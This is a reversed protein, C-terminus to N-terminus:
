NVKVQYLLYAAQGNSLTGGATTSSGTGLYFTMTSGATTGTSKGFAVNTAGGTNDTKLDTETSNFSAKAFITGATLSGYTTGSILTTYTPTVDTAYVALSSGTGADTVVALYELVDGPKGSVGAPYFLNSSTGNVTVTPTLQTGSGAVPTTVNRVYKAITLLGLHANTTVTGTGATGMTATVTTVWSSATSATALPIVGQTVRMTVDKAEVIQWPIGSANTALSSLAGAGLNNTLQISCPAATTGSGVAVETVTGVSFPGYYASGSYLYVMDGSKLGNVIGDGVTGGTVATDSPTTAAIGSDNPVKFTVSAGVAWTAITGNADTPDIITSGLFINAPLTPATGYSTMNTSATDAAGLTVLGPGNSNTQIRVTYDQTAGTGDTSGPTPTISLVTPAAAVTTVQIDVFASVAAQATGKADNYNVTITNRVTANGATGKTAADAQQPSWLAALAALAVPAGRIIRGLNTQATNEM